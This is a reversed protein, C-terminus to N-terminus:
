KRNDEYQSVKIGASILASIPTVDREYKEFFIVENIDANVILKWCLACPSLTLYMKKKRPDLPNLKTLANMEAHICTCKSNGVDTSSEVECTNTLGKAGGNYGLALVASNDYAVIVCGVERNLQACTSKKAIAKALDMWTNDWHGYERSKKILEKMKPNGGNCKKCYEYRYGPLERLEHIKVLGTDWCTECYVKSRSDSM